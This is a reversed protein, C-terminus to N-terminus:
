NHIVTMENTEYLREVEGKKGPYAVSEDLCNEPQSQGSTEGELIFFFVCYIWESTCNGM